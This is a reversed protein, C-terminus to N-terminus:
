PDTLLSCRLSLCFSMGGPPNRRMQTRANNSTLRLDM